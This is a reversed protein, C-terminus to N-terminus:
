EHSHVCMVHQTQEYALVAKLMKVSFWSTCAPQPNGFAVLDHHMAEIPLLDWFTFNQLM